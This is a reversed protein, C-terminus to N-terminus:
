SWRRSRTSRTPAMPAMRASCRSAVTTATMGCTAFVPWDDEIAALLQYALEDLRAEQSLDWHGPELAILLIRPTDNGQVEGWVLGAQIFEDGSEGGDNLPLHGSFDPYTNRLALYRESLTQDSM